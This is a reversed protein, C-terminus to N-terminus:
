PSTVRPARLRPLFRGTRAIYERYTAGFAEPAALLAEELRARYFALGLLLITLIGLPLSLFFLAGGLAVLIIATYVPHRIYRYPGTQILQHDKRLQIAPTLQKGLTQAARSFLFGGSVSLAVGLVQVAWSGPFDAFAPWHYAYEPAVFVGVGWLVSVLTGAIWLFQTGKAPAGAAVVEVPPTLRPRRALGILIVGCTVVLALGACVQVIPLALM